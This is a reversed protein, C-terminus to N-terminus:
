RRGPPVDGSAHGSRGQGLVFTYIECCLDRTLVVLLTYDDRSLYEGVLQEVTEDHTSM